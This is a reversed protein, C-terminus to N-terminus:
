ASVRLVRLASSQVNFRSGRVPAGLAHTRKAIKMADASANNSRPCSQGRTWTLSDQARFDVATPPAWGAMRGSIDQVDAKGMLERPCLHGREMSAESM